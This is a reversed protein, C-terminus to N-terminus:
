AQNGGSKRGKTRKGVEAARNREGGFDGIGVLYPLEWIMFGFVKDSVRKSTMGLFSSCYSSGGESKM